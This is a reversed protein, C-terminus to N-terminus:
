SRERKGPTSIGDSRSTGSGGAHRSVQGGAPTVASWPTGFRMRPVRGASCRVLAVAAPLITPVGRPPNLSRDRTMAQSRRNRSHDSRTTERHGARVNLRRNHPRRDAALGCRLDAAIPGRFIRRQWRPFTSGRSFMLRQTLRSWRCEGSGPRVRPRCKGTLYSSM